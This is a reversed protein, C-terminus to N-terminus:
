NSNQGSLGFRFGNTIFDGYRRTENVFSEAVLRWDEVQEVVHSDALQKSIHSGSEYYRSTSDVWAHVRDLETAYVTGQLVREKLLVARPDVMFNLGYQLAHNSANTLQVANQVVSRIDQDDLVQKTADGIRDVVGQVKPSEAISIAIDTARSLKEQAADLNGNTAQQGVWSAVPTIFTYLQQVSQVAGMSKAETIMDMANRAGNMYSTMLASLEEPDRPLARQLAQDFEIGEVGEAIRLVIPQLRQTMDDINHITHNISQLHYMGYCVAGFVALAIFGILVIAIILLLRIWWLLNYLDKDERAAAKLRSYSEFGGQEVGVQIDSVFVGDKKDVFDNNARFGKPPIRPTFGQSSSSM